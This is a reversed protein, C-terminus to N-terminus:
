PTSDAFPLADFLLPRSNDGRPVRAAGKPSLGSPEMGPKPQAKRCGNGAPIQELLDRAPIARGDRVATESLREFPGRRRADKVATESLRRQRDDGVDGVAM